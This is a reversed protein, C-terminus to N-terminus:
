YSRLVGIVVSATKRNRAFDGGRAVLFGIIDNDREALFFVQNMTSNFKCIIAEQEALTTTRENPELLMNKTELDIQRNVELIRAADRIEIERVVFISSEVTQDNM